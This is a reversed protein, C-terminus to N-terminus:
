VRGVGNLLINTDIIYTNTTTGLYKWGKIYIDYKIGISFDYIDFDVDIVFEKEKIMLDVKNLTEDNYDIRLELSEDLLTNYATRSLLIGTPSYHLIKVEDALKTYNNYKITEFEGKVRTVATGSIYVSGSETLLTIFRDGALATVFKYEPKTLDDSGPILDNLLLPESTMYYGSNADIQKDANSGWIWALNNIRLMTFNNGCAIEYIDGDIVIGRNSPNSPTYPLKESYRSFTTPDLKFPSWIVDKDETLGYSNNIACQGDSNSGWLWINGDSDLAINHYLGCEVQLINVPTGTASEQFNIYTPTSTSSAGNNLGLQGYKNDGFSLVRNDSTVALTHTLGTATQIVNSFVKKPEPEFIKKDNSVGLQGYSNNGISYLNAFEDIFMAHYSLIM